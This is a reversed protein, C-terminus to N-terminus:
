SIDVSNATMPLGTVTGLTMELIARSEQEIYLPLTDIPISGWRSKIMGGLPQNTKRENPGYFIYSITDAEKEAASYQALCTEDLHGKSEIGKKLGERNVQFPSGVALGAGRRFSMAFRKAEAILENRADVITAQNFGRGFEVPLRTLYDVWVMDVEDRQDEQITQQMITGFTTFESADVVRISGHAPNNVLDDVVCRFFDEEAKSLKGRILRSQSLPSHQSRFRENSSHITLLSFMVELAPMESTFLLHNWGYTVSNVIMNLMFTTKLHGAFGAVLHLGKKRFGGTSNDIFRYGSPVGPAMSLNKKRNSYEDWMKPASQKMNAPIRQDTRPPPAEVHSFLHQVAAEIGRPQRPSSSRGSAIDVAERCVTTLASSAQAAVEREFAAQFDSGYFQAALEAEEVLAMIALDHEGEAWRTLTHSSPPGGYTTRFDVLYELIKRESSTMALLRDLQVHNFNELAPAAEAPDQLVLSRIISSFEKMGRRNVDPRGLADRHKM